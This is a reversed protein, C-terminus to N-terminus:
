LTLVLDKASLYFTVMLQLEFPLEKLKDLSKQKVILSKTKLSPVIKNNFLGGRINPDM